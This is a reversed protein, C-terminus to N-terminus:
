LYPDFSEKANNDIATNSATEDDVLDTNSILNSVEEHIQRNATLSTVGIPKLSIIVPNTHM